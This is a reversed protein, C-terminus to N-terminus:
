TDWRAICDLFDRLEDNRLPQAKGRPPEHRGFRGCALGAILDLAVSRIRADLDAAEGFSLKRRRLVLSPGERVRDIEHVDADLGKLYHLGELFARQWRGELDFHYIPADGFYLSFAGQKFGAFVLDVSGDSPQLGIRRQYLAGTELLCAAETRQQEM